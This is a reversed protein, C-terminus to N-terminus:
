EMFIAPKYPMANKAKNQPDYSDDTHIIVEADVEESIFDLADSFVDYEDIKGIYRTKTIERGVKKAVDAIEKKNDHINEGIARGMIQGIDPKGIDAAIRYLLWKWDPALYVHIKKPVVDVIKKIENIDKVISQVMEESKEIVESPICSDAQLNLTPTCKMPFYQYTIPWEAESVFGEGGYKSWLEESSHPTFPGLIRIWAELISSLVFIIAEDPDELLHKTRYMYHDVDKKLLFLSDQLAKRTQFGELANTADNIRIFLQNMMWLDIKRTLDVREINSLDLPSKKISEIKEAFEFFWDLRRKTGVVEKERWDFDQWPEASSMLFLRVVDAGYEEIADSLLIVNGKSSSMKNGELLGMGFVVMGQPWNEPPFIAAHHFMHFSLHNGVLDKASLRWDLPYWYSFENQIESIIDEDIKLKFDDIDAGISDLQSTNIKNTNIDNDINIDNDFFVKEFFADNLDNPNIDKLYKAITYYSMYITSDTLPEILWQKDWPLKTGLGIRRSCAWDELWGIYYELNSRVENPIINENRLLNRTKEKWEEDSYKLFWQNDMIKVVCKTGCRCIVPHEAFDYMITAQNKSIMDKKINERAISVREGSYIPIHDSIIGKSHEVKYLENTAEELNPDEQTKVNLREIVDRAPIKSYKKLTVVNLPEIKNVIDELGYEELLENNNKLDQLAIYDAPAHGPVSFVSGSGYEPDVFSAPLLPHPEKTVPNEVYTGILPKPDITGIIKLDKIQNSINDYAEKSIIWTEGNTGDKSADSIVEIYEIDPNLWLNTSGYITEPRFTAPVLYKVNNNGEDIGNIENNNKDLLKFKLLTLENVGVGEGELLDHDGVPNDCHPCYKVPHNGKRILDMEKLKRIQWEIFKKYTPDTTRFERRWDISYGMDNMVNHYETSFYKVIYEPDELKPIETKPVKHVKEYLELTWPDKDKIRSAIGIVPAGTVHWGMPFLVNYGQMRKFRAYVDPVTYTRGHGIHMAGSPYPYAVTLFIKKREDHDAQFLKSKEWKDQWKKEMEKSM